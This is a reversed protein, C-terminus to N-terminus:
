VFGELCGERAQMQVHSIRQRYFNALTISQGQTLARRGSEAESLRYAPIGTALEVDRQTMGLFGRVRRLYEPTETAMM